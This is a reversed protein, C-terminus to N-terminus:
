ALYSLWRVQFSCITKGYFCSNETIAAEGSFTTNKKYFPFNKWWTDTSLISEELLVFIAIVSSLPMGIQFHKAPFNEKKYFFV